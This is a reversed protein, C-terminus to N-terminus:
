HLFEDLNVVMNTSVVRTCARWYVDRDLSHAMEQGCRSELPDQAVCEM